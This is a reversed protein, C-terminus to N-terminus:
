MSSHIIVSDLTLLAAELSLGCSVFCLIYKVIWPWRNIWSSVFLSSVASPICILSMTMSSFITSSKIIEERIPAYQTVNKPLDYCYSQPLKYTYLCMKDQYYLTFTVSQIFFSICTLGFYVEIRLKCLFQFFKNMKEKM